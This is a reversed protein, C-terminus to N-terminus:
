LARYAAGDSDRFHAWLAALRLSRVGSPNATTPAVDFEDDVGIFRFVDRMTRANERRYEEYVLVLIQEPRFVARYRELQDVYKVYEGYQFVEPRSPDIDLVARLDRTLIRGNRMGQLHLSNIFSAPERLIAVIRADPNAAAIRRPAVHSRLYGPSAEGLRQAPLAGGFMDLYESETMRTETPVHLDDNFFRPEKIPSMFVQPHQRLMEYMASTGCKPHGVVFFDPFRRNTRSQERQDTTQM